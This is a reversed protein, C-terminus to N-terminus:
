SGASGQLSIEKAKVSREGKDSVFVEFSRQGQGHSALVGGRLALAASQVLGLLDDQPGTVRVRTRWLQAGKGVAARSPPRALCELLLVATHLTRSSLVPEEVLIYETEGRRTIPRYRSEYDMYYITEPEELGLSVRTQLAATSADTPLYGAEELAPTLLRCVERFLLDDEALVADGPLLLCPGSGAGAARLSDVQVQHYSGCGGLLLVCCCLFLFAARM